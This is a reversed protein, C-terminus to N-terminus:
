STMKKKWAIRPLIKESIDAPIKKKRIRDELSEEIDVPRGWVDFSYWKGLDTQVTALRNLIEEGIEMIMDNKWVGSM